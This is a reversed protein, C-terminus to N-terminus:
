AFIQDFDAAGPREIQLPRGQRDTKHTGHPYLKKFEPLRAFTWSEYLTDIEKEVRWQAFEQIMTQIKAVDFKRARCFRLIDNDDFM